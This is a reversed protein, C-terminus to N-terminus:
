FKSFMEALGVYNGALAGFTTLLFVLFIRLLRNRWWQLPSGFDDAVHEFERVVPPVLYAQLLALVHGAGLVPSLATIPAVVFSSLVVLPHALSLAAGVATLGGTATIWFLLQRGAVSAGHAIGIWVLGLVVAAPLGWGAWKWIPSIPPIQSIAEIDVTHRASLAERIGAVHGAGVVAVVREGEAALIKHTLYADREDILTTKVSPLERGLERMLESIVDQNRIRRLEEEDLEPRDVISAILAALLKSKNWLSMSGWARRLTIRVDRDCLAVPIQHQEAVRAAELLESGPIVGLAGGLKKQYSALVLNALLPALQRQRIVQRLDLNEWRQRHSLAEFRQADLEICVCDPREKEIVERVLDASERSVHATGVLIFERGDIELVHVDPPYDRVRAATTGATDSM